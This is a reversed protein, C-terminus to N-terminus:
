AHYYGDEPSFRRLEFPIEVLRLKRRMAQTVYGKPGRRSAAVIKDMMINDPGLTEASGFLSNPVIYLYGYRDELWQGQDYDPLQMFNGAAEFSVRIHSKKKAM